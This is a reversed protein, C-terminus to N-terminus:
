PKTTVPKPKVQSIATVAVLLYATTLLIQKFQKLFFTM